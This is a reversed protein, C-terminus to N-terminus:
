KLKPKPTSRVSLNDMELESESLGEMEDILEDIDQM